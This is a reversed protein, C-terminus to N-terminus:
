ILKTIKNRLSCYDTFLSSFFINGYSSAKKHQYNTRAPRDIYVIIYIHGAPNHKTLNHNSNIIHFQEM